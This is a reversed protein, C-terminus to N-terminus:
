EPHAAAYAALQARNRLDLKTLVHSVHHSVTKPSLHLRAAIQANSLGAAVLQLVQRERDSLVGAGVRGPRGPIGLARLEGAVRDAELTAGLDLLEGLARRLCDVAGPDAAEALVMGLVSRTRAAEFPQHLRTWMALASRLDAMAAQTDGAMASLRGRAGAALADFQPSGAEAALETLEACAWGGAVPDGRLVAAEVLLALTSALHVGHASAHHRCDELARNAAQPDGRALHLAALCLLSEVRPELEPDVAALLSGAEELRGQRVRLAALRTRARHHLAPSVGQSVRMGAILQEEADSWRGCATLVSGYTVRCEAYLYPCGFREVFEDILRCWQEARELDDALECANLMDCSTNAVTDLSTHEGALAAAMAEDILAFGGAEGRAIRIRGLQALASLELDPDPVARALLLAERAHHEATALDDVLDARALHAWGHLPDAPDHADLLTEARGVWGNAAARNAFEGLHVVGLWVACRAAGPVDRAERFLAYARTAQQVGARVEGQWWLASALGFRAEADDTRTLASEFAARAQSWRGEDFATWGMAVPTETM